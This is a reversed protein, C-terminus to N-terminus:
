EELETFLEKAAALAKEAYDAADSLKEAFKSYYISINEGRQEVSIKYAKDQLEELIQFCNTLPEIYENGESLYQGRKGVMKAVKNIRDIQRTM